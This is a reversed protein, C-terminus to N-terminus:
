DDHLTSALKTKKIPVSRTLRKKVAVNKPRTMSKAKIAAASKETADAVVSASTSCMLVNSFHAPPKPKRPKIDPQYRAIIVAQSATPIGHGSGTNSKLLM